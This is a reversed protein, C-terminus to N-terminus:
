ASRRPERHHRRPGLGAARDLLALAAELGLDPLTAREGAVSTEVVSAGDPYLLVWAPASARVAATVEGCFVLAPPAQTLARDLAEPAVALVEADPRLIALAAALAERCARPEHAVLVRPRPPPGHTVPDDPM